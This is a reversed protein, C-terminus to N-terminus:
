QMQGQQGQGQQAQGQGVTWTGSGCRATLWFLKIAVVVYTWRFHDGFYYMDLYQTQDVYFARSIDRLNYIHMFWMSIFVVSSLVLVFICM